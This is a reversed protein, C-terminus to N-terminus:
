QLAHKAKALACGLFEVFLRINADAEPVHGPAVLRLDLNQLEDVEELVRLLVTLETCLDGLYCCRANAAAHATPNDRTKRTM